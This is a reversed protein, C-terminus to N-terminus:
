DDSGTFPAAVTVAKELLPILIETIARPPVAVDCEVEIFGNALVIAKLGPNLTDWYITRDNQIDAKIM